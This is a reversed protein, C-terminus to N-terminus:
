APEYEEKKKRYRPPAAAEGALQKARKIKADGGNGHAGSSMRKHHRRARSRLTNGGRRPM